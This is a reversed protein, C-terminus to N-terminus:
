GRPLWEFTIGIPFYNGSDLLGKIYAIREDMTKCHHVTFTETKINYAQIRYM